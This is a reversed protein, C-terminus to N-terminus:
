EGYKDFDVTFIIGAGIEKIAKRQAPLKANIELEKSESHLISSYLDENMIVSGDEGVTVGNIELGIFKSDALANKFDFATYNRLVWQNAKIVKIEEIVVPGSACKNEIYLNDSVAVNGTSDMYVSVLIPTSVFFFTSEANVLIKTEGYDSLVEEENDPTIEVGNSVFNDIEPVDELKDEAEGDNQYYYYDKYATATYLNKFFVDDWAKVIARGPLLLRGNEFLVTAEMGIEESSYEKGNVVMSSSGVTLEIEVKNGNATTRQITATRSENDWLVKAGLDQNIFRLPAYVEGFWVRPQVDPFDVEVDDVFVWIGTESTDDSPNQSPNNGTSGGDGSGGLDSDTNPNSSGGYTTPVGTQSTIAGGLLSNGYYDINGVSGYDLGMLAGSGIGTVGGFGYTRPAGYHYSCAYWPQYGVSYSPIETSTANTTDFTLTQTDPDYTWTIGNELVGSTAPEDLFHINEGDLSAQMTTLMSTNTSYLYANEINGFASDITQTDTSLNTLTGFGDGEFAGSAISKLSSPLVLSDVYNMGYFARVGIGELTTSLNLETVNSLHTTDGTTQVCSFLGSGIYTIGDHFNIVSYGTGLPSYGIANDNGGGYVTWYYDAIAGTGIVDLTNTIDNYYAKVNDGEAGIDTVLNDPYSSWVDSATGVTSVTYGMNEFKSKLYLQNASLSATKSDVKYGMSSSGSGFAASDWTLSDGLYIFSSVNTCGNFVSFGLSSVTNPLEISTLASCNSFAANEITSLETNKMNIEALASCESFASYKITKITTNTLDISGLNTCDSFANAGIIELKSGEAFIVENIAARQFAGGGIEKVSAPITISELQSLNYHTTGNINSNCFYFSYNGISTIGEEIIIEKIYWNKNFDSRYSSTFDKMDGTGSITLIGTESDFSAKVSDSSTASLDWETVEAYAPVAFITTLVAMVLFLSLIKRKM